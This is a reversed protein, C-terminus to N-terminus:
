SRAAARWHHPHNIYAIARENYNLRAVDYDLISMLRFPYAHEAAFSQCRTQPWQLILDFQGSVRCRALTDLVIRTQEDTARRLLGIQLTLQVLGTCRQLVACMQLWADMDWPVDKSHYNLLDTWTINIRRVRALRDPLISEAFYVLSDAYTFDFTNESYLVHVAESYLLRCTQLLSILHVAKARHPLESKEHMYAAPAYPAHAPALMWCGAEDVELGTDLSCTLPCAVACLKRHLCAM